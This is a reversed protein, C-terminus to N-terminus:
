VSESSFRNLVQMPVAQRQTVKMADLFAVGDGALGKEDIFQFEVVLLNLIRDMENQPRIVTRGVRPRFGFNKEVWEACLDEIEM